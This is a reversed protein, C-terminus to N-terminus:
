SPAGNARWKRVRAASVIDGKREYLGLAQRAAAEADDPRGALRLVDARDELVEAHWGLLDTGEFAALAEDSLALAEDFRAQRARVGAMASLALVRGYRSKIERGAVEEAESIRGLAVLNRALRSSIFTPEPLNAMAEGLARAAAEYDGALEDVEATCTTADWYSYEQGAERLRERYLQGLRRAEEFQGLRARLHMLAHFMYGEIAREGQKERLVQECRAIGDAVAAPGQVVDRSLTFMLEAEDRAAGAARAHVLAQETAREEAAMRGRMFAVQGVLQWARTLGLHDDAATFVEIAHRVLPEIEDALGPDWGQLRWGSELVRGGIYWGMVNVHQRLREDDLRDAVRAAADLVEAVQEDTGIEGMSLALDVGLLPRDPDDAPLLDLARTLLNVSARIDSRAVAKRGASALHGGARTALDADDAGRIGVEGRYRVAQELHYGVIEEYEAIREGARRELWEAFREHLTAREEKPLGGYAADRILQHRFRYTEDPGRTSRDPRVLEKRVLGMLNARVESPERNGNRGMAALELVAPLEFIRGVVAAREAVSREGASLRELRATLLAEITPPVDIRDIDGVLSYRGDERRLRGEDVLMGIMEEVFLPNGEAAQSIREGVALPLRTGGLLNTILEESADDALPELLLSAANLKGGGWNPRTDLLEPRAPCLLLIPSDRSWDAVYDILDLLTPEAWHIDDMVAVLPRDAALTELMTRVAWFLDEQPSGGEVLGVLEAILPTVRDAESGAVLKGLKVQAETRSDQESIGALQRVAEAIPWYTIGEGYPLCRGRVVSAQDSLEALFEAVLRSKGAGAPGLLTFLQCARQGAAREYSQRIAALESQRGVMPSDLRRAHAEALPSVSLLRVAALPESKGKAAIADVAEVSVADRVLRHTSQGLLITGPEAAQELRAAVNVADGTVLGEGNHVTVVPGTNVGIRANITVGMEQGLQENLRALAQRMEHAARVARLADDEHLQPVGFVAMVADGIFKEVTGGHRELVARLTEFYRTMVRRLAEPDLREGLETSRALDCFVVTVTKRTERQAAVPELRAGCSHCFRAEPMNQTGCSPCQM